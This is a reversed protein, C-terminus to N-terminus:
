APPRWPEIAHAGRACGCATARPLVATLAVPPVLAPAPVWVGPHAFQEYHARSPVGNPLSLQCGPDNASVCLRAPANSRGPVKAAAKTGEVPVAEAPSVLSDPRVHRSSEYEAVAFALSIPQELCREVTVRPGRPSVGSASEGLAGAGAAGGVALVSAFLATALLFRM